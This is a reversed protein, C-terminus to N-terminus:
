QMAVIPNRLRGIEPIECEFVDGDRLLRGTALGVGAPTGMSIVDGPELTLIKSIYQIAEACSHVMMSVQAEQVVAGNLIGRLVFKAPDDVEDATLVTPGMPASGDFWKGTLWDFFNDNQRLKRSALNENIKRESVDNVLTYGWIGQGAEHLSANKLPRGIVVAIEAEYDLAVNRAILPIPDGTGIIASSPKMFFQPTMNDEPLADFGSEVVHARFNGALLLFKPPNAIPALWRVPGPLIESAAQLKSKASDWDRIVDLLTKWPGAKSLNVVGAATDAALVPGSPTAARGIKM